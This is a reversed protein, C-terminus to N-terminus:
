VGEPVFRYYAEIDNKVTVLASAAMLLEECNVPTKVSDYLSVIIDQIETIKKFLEEKNM